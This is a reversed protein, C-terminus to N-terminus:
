ASVRLRLQAIALLLLTMLSLLIWPMVPVPTAPAQFATVQVSAVAGDVVPLAGSAVLAELNSKNTDSWSAYSFRTSNGTFSVSGPDSTYVFAVSIAGTDSGLRAAFPSVSFDFGSSVDISEFGVATDSGSQWRFRFAPSTIPAGSDSGTFFFEESASDVNLVIQAYSVAPVGFALVMGILLSLLNKM